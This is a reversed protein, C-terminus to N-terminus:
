SRENTSHVIQLGVLRAILVAIYLQGTIAELAALSQAGATVPTIDGYGLTSLTVFSFYLFPAINDQTMMTTDHHALLTESFTFAGPQMMSMLCYVISFMLGILLYVCLAGYIRDVTIRGASLVFQLIIGAMFIFFIMSVALSMGLTVPIGPVQYGVRFLLSVVALILTVLYTRRSHVVSLVATLLLTTFFIDFLYKGLLGGERLIPFGLFMLALSIFLFLFKPQRETKEKL